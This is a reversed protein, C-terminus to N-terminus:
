YQNAYLSPPPWGRALSERGFTFAGGALGFGGGLLLWYSAGVALLCGQVVCGKVVVVVIFLVVLDFLWHTRNRYISIM